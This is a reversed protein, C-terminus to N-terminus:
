PARFGWGWFGGQWGLLLLFVATPAPCGSLVGGRFVGQLGLLLLFLATPAPRGPPTAQYRVYDAVNDALKSLLAHLVAPAGFALRKIHTYSKSSGGEVIYSALTFPAGVFGLVTSKNGVQCWM